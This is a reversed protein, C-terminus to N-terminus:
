QIIEYTNGHNRDIHISIIGADKLRKLADKMQSERLVKLIKCFMMSRGHYKGGLEALCQLVIKDIRSQEQRRRELMREITEQSKM